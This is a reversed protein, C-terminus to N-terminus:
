DKPVARMHDPLRGHDAWLDVLRGHDAWLDVLPAITGVVGFSMGDLPHGTMFISCVRGGPLCRIEAGRCRYVPGGWPGTAEVQEPPPPACPPDPLLSL